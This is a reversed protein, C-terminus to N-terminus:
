SKGSFTDGHNAKNIRLCDTLCRTSRVDGRTINKITDIIVTRITLISLPLPQSLMTPERVTLSSVTM